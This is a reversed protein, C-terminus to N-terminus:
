VGTRSPATEAATFRDDWDALARHAVTSVIEVFAKAALTLPRSVPAVLSLQLDLAPNRLPMISLRDADAVPDVMLSPMAVSWGYRWVMDLMTIVSDVEMEKTITIGLGKLYEIVAPRRLTDQRRSWLLKVAQDPQSHRVPSEDPGSVLCFPARFLPRLNLGREDTPVPSLAFDIEGALIMKPLPEGLREVLRVEIHPHHHALEQLAQAMIRRTLAPTVGVTITNQYGASSNSAHDAGEDLLQLAETAYKYFHHGAPTPTVGALERCFLMVGLLDELQRIQMSVSSQTSSELTAAGTFSNQEYAAVFYRLAKLSSRFRM